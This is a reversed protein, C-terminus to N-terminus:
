PRKRRQVSRREMSKIQSAALKQKAHQLNRVDFTGADRDNLRGGSRVRILQAWRTSQRKVMMRNEDLWRKLMKESCHLAGKERHHAVTGNYNRVYSAFADVKAHAYVDAANTGAMAFRDVYQYAPTQWSPIWIEDSLLGEKPIHIPSLLLTDSRAFIFLDPDVLFQEDRCSSSSASSDATKTRRRRRGLSNRYAEMLSNGQRFMNKLTDVTWAGQDFSAVHKPEIWSLSDDFDTQNTTVLMAKNPCSSSSSSSLSSSSSWLLLKSQISNVSEIPATIENNKLNTLVTVDQYLHMSVRFEVHPNPNMINQQYADWVLGFEKPIGFLIIGVVLRRGHNRLEKKITAGNEGQLSPPVQQQSHKLLEEKDGQAGAHITETEGRLQQQQQQVKTNRNEVLQATQDLTTTTANLTQEITKRNHKANPSEMQQVVVQGQLAEVFLKSSPDKRTTTTTTTSNANAHSSVEIKQELTFTTSKM